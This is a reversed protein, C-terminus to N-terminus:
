DFAFGFYAPIVAGNRLPHIMAFPRETGPTRFQGSNCGLAAAIAPAAAPDGLLEMGHLTTGATYAALLFGEGAYFQAQQSLFALNEGEQVVGGDPLFERRLAAYEGPGIARIPVSSEGAGCSFESVRTADRYGLKRYMERLGEEAPVLLVSAYGQNNLLVHVEEMLRRCLGRGRHGPATVVAYVYAIRDKGCSCDFWCLAALLQDGQTICRCRDPSFGTELFLDWFGDYEGFVDKWLQLLQRTQAPTPRDAKM